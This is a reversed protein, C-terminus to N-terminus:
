RKSAQQLPKNVPQRLHCWSSEQADRIAGAAGKGDIPKSNTLDGKLMGEGVRISAVHGTRKVIYGEKVESTASTPYSWM